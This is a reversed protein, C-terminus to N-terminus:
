INLNIVLINLLIVLLYNTSNTLPSCVGYPHFHTDLDRSANENPSPAVNSIHAVSRGRSDSNFRVTILWFINLLILPLLIYDYDSLSLRLNSLWIYSLIITLNRLYYDLWIRNLRLIQQSNSYSFLCVSKVVGNFCLFLHHLFKCSLCGKAGM